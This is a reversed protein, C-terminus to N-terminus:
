SADEVTVRPAQAELYRWVQHIVVSAEGVAAAVRKVSRSRVDGVAFVGPVSTEFMLPHRDHTWAEGLDEDTVVYGGDDRVIEDPLWDTHPHAGILVFVGDAPVSETRGDEGLLEVHELREAGAADVLRTSCRVVINDHADMEDRLYQSMSAALTPGRVVVTVRDAYRSFHVAAQGASNGGGVIVVQKGELTQAAAASAAYFVDRNEFRKLGPVDLRRYEIGMALIVAQARVDPADRVELVLSGDERRLGTVEKTLLFSTGFVWAQQYARQTLESGSLGRPFGLYNRIRASSSAQGGIAGREIVLADIGESSAYVAAALGAPGCGVVVLGFDDHELQTSVGWGAALETDSPSALVRGGPLYVVPADEPTRDVSELLARGRDSDCSHFAFPVGNRSLLNRIEHTRKVDLNAVVTVERPAEPDSRQWELLLETVTRHFFEDPPPSPQLVYYDIRGHLMAERIASTTEEDGWGGWPILLGRKARPYTERTRRLLDVCARDALVLAVEEEAENMEELADLAEGPGSECVIRYDSGYRRRLEHAIRGLADSDADVALIVPPATV